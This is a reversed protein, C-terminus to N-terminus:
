QSVEYGCAAYGAKDRWGDAHSKNNALRADKMLGLMIAVDARDFPGAQRVDAWANWMVAIRHFNDEPQGYARDRDGCIAAKAEDLCKERETM